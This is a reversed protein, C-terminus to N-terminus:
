SFEISRLRIPCTAAEKPLGQRRFRSYANTDFTVTCLPVGPVRTFARAPPSVTMSILPCFRLGRCSARSWGGDKEQFESLASSLGLRKGWHVQM